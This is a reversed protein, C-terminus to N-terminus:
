KEGTMFPTAPLGNKNFLNTIPVNAWGFRVAVPKAVEACTVVVTDGQISAEAPVFDKGNGSIEFGTLVGGKAELGDGVHQFTLIARNEDLKLKDFVPGSYEIKEGYTLARAALALRTGVPEKDKPHINTPDGYDTIVAMATNPVTRWAFLQADRIEPSMNEHPAIQVFLFPLEHGFAKRWSQIMAPFIIRYEASAKSDAEGQYWIAGRIAMPVLPAIMGNYLTCPSQQNIDPSVPPKPTQPRKREPAKAIAEQHKALAERYQREAQVPDYKKMEADIRDTQHKLRPDNAMVERPTWARAPTGGVSSNIIGIPVKRTEALHKAFFYAVASFSGLNGAESTQWSADISDLPASAPHLPVSLLRVLPNPAKSEATGASAALRMAMNSQGSAIWVEGVLVDSIKKEGSASRITLIDPKVSAKLPSLRAMWKGKADATTTKKQDAFAVDVTEGPKASGWVPVEMEQQLVMHDTFVSAVELGRVTTTVLLGVMLWKMVHKMM